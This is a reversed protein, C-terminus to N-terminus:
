YFITRTLHLSYKNEYDISLGRNWLLYDLEVSTFIYGAKAFAARLLEVTHIACARIEIEEESDQLLLQQADIREGLSKEYEIIGDYRLVHPVMNDAFITLQDLDRFYGLGQHNFALSIDAATIQARKLFPVQVGQYVAIDKFYPIQLLLRVLKEASHDVAEFLNKVEGEFHILLFDGLQNLATTFHTLLEKIPANHANQNFIQLCDEVRLQALMKATVPANKDYYEKWAKAVTFYGSGKIINKLYPFYGSGFNIAELSLFFSLTDYDQGLYHCTPDLPPNEIKQIPLERIYAGILDERITVYQAATAVQKAKARIEDFITM